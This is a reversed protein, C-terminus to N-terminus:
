YPQLVRSREERRVVVKRIPCTYTNRVLGPGVLGPRYRMAQTTRGTSVVAPLVYNCAQYSVLSRYYVGNEIHGRLRPLQPGLRGILEQYKDRLLALSDVVDELGMRMCVM